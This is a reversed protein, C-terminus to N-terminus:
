GFQRRLCQAASPRAARHAIKNPASVREVSYPCKGVGESSSQNQFLHPSVDVKIELTM